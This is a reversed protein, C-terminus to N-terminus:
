CTFKSAWAVHVSAFVNHGLQQKALLSPVISNVTRHMRIESINFKHFFTDSFWYVITKRSVKIITTWIESHQRLSHRGKTFMHTSLPTMSYSGLIHIHSSFIGRISNFQLISVHILTPFHLSIKLSPNIQLDPLIIKLTM